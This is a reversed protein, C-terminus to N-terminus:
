KVQVEILGLEYSAPVQNVVVMSRALDLRKSLDLTINVGQYDQEDLQMVIALVDAVSM